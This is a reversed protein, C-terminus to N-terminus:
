GLVVPTIQGIPRYSSGLFFFTGCLNGTIGFWLLRISLMNNIFLVLQSCPCDAIRLSSISVNLHSPPDTYNGPGRSYLIM